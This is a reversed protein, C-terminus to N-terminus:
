RRPWVWLSRPDHKLAQNPSGCVNGSTGDIALAFPELLSADTGFGTSPSLAAGPVAATAGALVSISSGRYNAVWISGAGDVAIGQPHDVGGGIYGSSIVTGTTGLESVSDGFYNAVWVNNHADVAVGSAGDCCVIPTATTGNLSIRTVTNASQNAFWAFHNSDVAVAVPFELQGSGCGNVNCNTTLALGSSNFLAYTSNGYNAIWMDGNPDAAIGTPYYVGATYGIGNTIASGANNFKAVSGGNRPSGATEDSEVWINNSSDIALGFSEHLGQNTIGHTFVPAGNPAFESLAENYDASWLDGSGDVSIATPENLGGGSLTLSIMWDPPTATLAPTFTTATSLAYIAAVNHGPNRAITFAADLTNTPATGGVTAASFLSTCVPTSAACASLANALSNLMAFNVTVNAPVNAGPSVGTILDGLLQANVVANGLGITNTASAGVNGGAVYFQALATAMAVTTLENVTVSLTSTLSGCAPMAAALWLSNNATGTIGVRGGKALLFLGAGSTTCSFNSPLTFDGSSDTTLAQTLLATSASGNGSTGTAYLQVSAGVVPLGAAQVKGTFSTVTGSGSVTAPTGGGCGALLLAGCFGALPLSLALRRM